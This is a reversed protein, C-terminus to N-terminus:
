VRVIIVGAKFRLITVPAGRRYGAALNWFPSVDCRATITEQRKGGINCAVAKQEKNCSKPATGM